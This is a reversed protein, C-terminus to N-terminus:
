PPDLARMRELLTEHEPQEYRKVTVLSRQGTIRQIQKPSAGARILATITTRRMDHRTLDSVKAAKIFAAWAGKIGDKTRHKRRNNRSPFIWESPPAAKKWRRLEDALRGPLQIEIAEGDKDPETSLFMATGTDRLEDWRLRLAHAIRMGLFHLLWFLPRIFDHRADAAAFLRPQEDGTAIRERENDIRGFDVDRVPDNDCIGAKRAYRYLSQLCRLESRVTAPMTGADARRLRYEECDATTIMNLPKDGFFPVLHKKLQRRYKEVTELDRKAELFVDQLTAVGPVKRRATYTGEFDSAQRKRLVGLAQTRNPCDHLTETVRARSGDPMTHWPRILWSGGSGDRKRYYGVGPNDPDWARKGPPVKDPEFRAM